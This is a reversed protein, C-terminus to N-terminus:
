ACGADELMDGLIPMAAFDRSDYMAQALQPIAGDNWALWAPSVTPPPRPPSFGFRFPSGFIARVLACGGPTPAWPPHFISASRLLPAIDQGGPHCVAVAAQAAAGQATFHDVTAVFAQAAERAAALEGDTAQGDAYREAVEVAARGRADAMLPGL